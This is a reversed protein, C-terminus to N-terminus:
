GRAAEVARDFAGASWAHFSQRPWWHLWGNVEAQASLATGWASHQQGSDDVTTAVFGSWCGIERPSFALAASRSSLVIMGRRISADSGRLVYASAWEGLTMKRDTM